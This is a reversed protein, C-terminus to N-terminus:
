WRDPTVLRARRILGIHKEFNDSLKAFKVHTLTRASADSHALRGGPQNSTPEARAIRAFHLLGRVPRGIACRPLVIRAREEVVGGGVRPVFEPSVVDRVGFHGGLSDDAVALYGVGVQRLEASGMTGPEGCGVLCQGIWWSTASSTGSLQCPM